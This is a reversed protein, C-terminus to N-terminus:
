PWLMRDRCSSAFHARPQLPLLARAIRQLGAGAAIVIDIERQHVQPQPARANEIFHQVRRLADFDDLLHPVQRAVSASKRRSAAM